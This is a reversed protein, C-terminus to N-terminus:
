VGRRDRFLDRRQINGFKRECVHPFVGRQILKGIDARLAGVHELRQASILRLSFLEVADHEVRGCEALARGLDPVGASAILIDVQEGHFEYLPASVENRARTRVIHRQGEEFIHKRVSGRRAPAPYFHQFDLYLRWVM